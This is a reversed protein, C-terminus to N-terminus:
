AGCNTVIMFEELVLIVVGCVFVFGVVIVSM